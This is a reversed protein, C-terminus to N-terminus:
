VDTSELVYTKDFGVGHTLLQVVSSKADGEPYCYQASIKYSGQLTQYGELLVDTYNQGNKTAEQSFKTVDLNNEIPFKKFVGQRSSIDVPITVNLCSKAAASAALLLISLPIPSSIMALRAITPKEVFSFCSLKIYLITIKFSCHSPDV